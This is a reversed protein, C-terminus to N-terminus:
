DVDAVDADLRREEYDIRLELCLLDYSGHEDFSIRFHRVNDATMAGPIRGSWDYSTGQEAMMAVHESPAIEILGLAGDDQDTLHYGVEWEVWRYELVKLFTLRTRRPIWGPELPETFFSLEVTAPAERKNRIVVTPEDDWRTRLGEGPVVRYAVVWRMSYQGNDAAGM